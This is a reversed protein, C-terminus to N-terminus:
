LLRQIAEQPEFTGSLAPAKVNRLLAEDFLLQIKAQQAVESLSSALSQAPLQLQISEAHAQLSIALCAALLTPRTYLHSFCHPARFM